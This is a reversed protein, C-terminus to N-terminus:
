KKPYTELVWATWAADFAETDLAFAQGFAHAQQEVVQEPTPSKGEVIRAKLGLLFPGMGEPRERLLFDVRSWAMMHDTYKFEAADSVACLKAATPWVENKVRAHIRPPWNWVDKEDTSFSKDETFYNQKPDIARAFAHGLGTALWIPVAFSYHSTGDVFNHVLNYALACHLVGDQSLSSSQVHAAFLMSDSKPFLFRASSDGGVGNLYRQKIRGFSSEKELLLVTFKGGMGWFPGEGRYVGDVTQGTETPFRVGELGFIRSFEAYADECRMAALHLRLWPDLKRVKLPIKPIRLQLRVLENKLREREDRDEMTYEPLSSGIKFHATEVWLMEVDDGLVKEFDTTSAGDAFSFPHVALYGAAALAAPENKTYPDIRFAEDGPKKEQASLPGAVLLVAAVAACAAARASTM